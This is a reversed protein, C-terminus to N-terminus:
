KISLDNQMEMKRRKEAREFPPFSIFSGAKQLEQWQDAKAIRNISLKAHKKDVKLGERAVFPLKKCGLRLPLSPSFSLLVAKQHPECFADLKLRSAVTHKARVLPRVTIFLFHSLKLKLM